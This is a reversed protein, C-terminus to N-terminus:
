SLTDTGSFGLAGLWRRGRSTKEPVKFEGELTGDELLRMGFQRAAHELRERTAELTSVLRAMRARELSMEVEGLRIQRDLASLGEDIAQHLSEPASSRLAFLDDPSLSRTSRDHLHRALLGIIRDREILADRLESDSIADAPILDPLESLTADAPDPAPPEGVAVPPAEEGDPVQEEMGESAYVAAKIRLWADDASVSSDVARIDDATSADQEDSDCHVHTWIQELLRFQADMSTRLESVADKLDGEPLEM